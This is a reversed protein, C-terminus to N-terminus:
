ISRDNRLVFPQLLGKLQKKSYDQYCYRSKSPLLLIDTKAPDKYTITHRMTLEKVCESNYTSMEKANQLSALQLAERAKKRSKLQYRQAKRGLVLEIKNLEMQDKKCKSFSQSGAHLQKNM